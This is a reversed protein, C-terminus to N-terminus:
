ISKDEPLKYEPLAPKPAEEVEDDHEILASLLAILVTLIKKTTFTM